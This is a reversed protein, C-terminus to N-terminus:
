NLFTFYINMIASDMGHTEIWKANIIIYSYHEPNEITICLGSDESMTNIQLKHNESIIYDHKPHCDNLHTNIHLM